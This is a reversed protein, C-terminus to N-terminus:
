IAGRAVKNFALLHHLITPEGDEREAHQTEEPGDFAEAAHNRNLVGLADGNNKAYLPQNKLM